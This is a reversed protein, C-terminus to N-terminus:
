SISYLNLNIIEANINSKKDDWLIVGLEGNQYSYQTDHIVMLSNGDISLGYFGDLCILSMEYVRGIELNFPIQSIPSSFFGNTVIESVLTTGDVIRFRLREFLSKHRFALQFEKFISNFKVHIDLRVNCFKHDFTTLYIWDNFIGRSILKIHNDSTIQIKKTEQLISNFERKDGSYLGISHLLMFIKLYVVQNWTEDKYDLIPVLDSISYLKRWLTIDNNYLSFPEVSVYRQKLKNEIQAQRFRRNISVIIDILHSLNIKM